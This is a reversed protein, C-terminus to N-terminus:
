HRASGVLATVVANHHMRTASHEPSEAPSLQGTGYAGLIPLDPFRERLVVLDRDEGGYFFPGRGICSFMLACVPAEVELRAVTARMEAEAPAPQRTAWALYQGCRVREAVTVTHEATADIVAVVRNGRGIRPDGTPEADFLIASLHHLHRTPVDRMDPPLVDMLSRAAPREDLMELEFGSARTIRRAQGLMRLGDSLGVDIEADALSLSCHPTASLRGHQWLAPGGRTSADAFGGGLMSGFRPASAMWDAPSLADAFGLLPTDAHACPALSLPEGFVLAAAAPRDLVWGSETLVGPAIGGAVQMCQAGHAAATVAAQACRSFEPTLFLLVANARVLGAKALATAVAEEALRPHPANASVLATALTM